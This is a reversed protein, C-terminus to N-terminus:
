EGAKLVASIPALAVRGGAEADAWAKIADLTDPYTHGVMVANGTQNAQFAARKLYRQIVESREKDADLERFVLAAPVGQAVARKHAANLGTDFFLLGHGESSAIAVIQDAVVRSKAIPGAAPDMIGVAQPVATLYSGLTTEVDQATAGAPLGAGLLMVELGAARYRSAANRSAAKTPDIAITLPLGIGTLANPDLGDATDILVISLLSRGEGPEFPVANRALAGKAQAAAESPAAEEIPTETEVPVAAATGITPLTSPADRETLPVVRKGIRPPGAPSIEAQALQLETPTEDSPPANELELTTPLDEPAVPRAADIAPEPEPSPPTAEVPPRAPAAASPDNRPTAAPAPEPAAEASTPEPGASPPDPLIASAAAQMFPAAPKDPLANTIAAELRKAPLTQREPVDARVDAAGLRQPLKTVLAGFSRDGGIRALTPAPGTASAPVPRENVANQAVTRPAATTALIAAATPRTQVAPGASPNSRIEKSPTLSRAASRAAAFAAGADSQDELVASAPAQVLTDTVVPAEQAPTAVAQPPKVEGPQATLGAAFDKIALGAMEETRPTSAAGGPAVGEISVAAAAVEGVPEAAAAGERAPADTQSALVGAIPSTAPEASTGGVADALVVAGRGPAVDGAADQEGQVPASIDGAVGAVAESAASGSTPAESPATELSAAPAASATTRDGQSTVIPDAEVSQGTAPAVGPAADGSTGRQRDVNATSAPEALAAAEQTAGAVQDPRQPPLSGRLSAEAAAELEDQGVAGPTPLAPPAGAETFTASSRTVDPTGLVVSTTQAAEAPSPLAPAATTGLETVPRGAPDTGSALSQGPGPTDPVKVQVTEVGPDSQPLSPAADSPPDTFGSGAPVAISSQPPATGDAPIAAAEARLAAMEPTADASPAAQLPATAQAADRQEQDGTPLPSLLSIVLAALISFVTGWFAGYILGSGM